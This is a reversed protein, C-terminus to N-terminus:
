SNKIMKEFSNALFEEKIEYIFKPDHILRQITILLGGIDLDKLAKKNGAKCNGGVWILNSSSSILNSYLLIKRTRVEYMDQSCIKKDFYFGHIVTIILNIFCSMYSQAGSVFIDKVLCLTDYNEKYIEEAIIPSIAELIPIPLGLKTFVDSGLHIYQAFVAAPLRNKDEKISELAWSFADFTNSEYEWRKEPKYAVKFTRFNYHGDLSITRTIINIVGFIWGLVPDHGLTHIRHLKGQMNINFDPSGRTIDYPVSDFVIEKCTPFNHRSEQLWNVGHDNTYEARSNKENEIIRKDNHNVRSNKIKQSYTQNILALIVWRSIQLASAFFLFKKDIDNLGTKEEFEKDLQNFIDESNHTIKKLRCTEIHIENHLSNIKNHTIDLKRCLEERKIKAEEYLKKGEAFEKDATEIREKIAAYEEKLEKLNNKNITM